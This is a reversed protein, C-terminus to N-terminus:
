VKFYNILATAMGVVVAGVVCGILRPVADQDGKALKLGAWAGCAAIIAIIIRSLKSVADGIDSIVSSQAFIAIPM